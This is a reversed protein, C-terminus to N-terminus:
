QHYGCFGTGSQEGTAVPVYRARVLSYSVSEMPPSQDFDTCTNGPTSRPRAVKLCARQSRESRRMM